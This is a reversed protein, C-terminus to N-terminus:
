TRQQLYTTYKMDRMWISRLLPTSGSTTKSPPLNGM